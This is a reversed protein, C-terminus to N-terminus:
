TQLMDKWINLNRWVLYKTYLLVSCYCGSKRVYTISYPHIWEYHVRKNTMLTFQLAKHIFRPLFTNIIARGDTRTYSLGIPLKTNNHCKSSVFKTSKRIKSPFCQLPILLQSLITYNIKEKAFLDEDNSIDDLM